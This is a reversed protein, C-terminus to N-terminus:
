IGVSRLVAPDRLVNARHSPMYTFAHDNPVFMTFVKTSNSLTDSIDRFAPLIGTITRRASFFFFFVTHLASMACDIRVSIM